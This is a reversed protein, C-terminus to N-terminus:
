QERAERTDFEQENRLAEESIDGIYPEDDITVVVIGSMGLHVGLDPGGTGDPDDAAGSTSLWLSKGRRHAATLCRGTLASRLEGPGHPRTVYDDHDDVDLIRRYLAGDALVQRASEVEPLEPM